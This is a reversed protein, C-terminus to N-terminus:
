KMKIFQGMSYNGNYENEYIITDNIVDIITITFIPSKLLQRQMISDTTEFPRLQYTCSDIWNIKSKTCAGSEIYKTVQTSDNVTFILNEGLEKFQGNKLIDCKAKRDIRTKTSQKSLQFYLTMVQNWNDCKGSLEKFLIQTLEFNSKDPFSPQIELIGYYLKTVCSQEAM